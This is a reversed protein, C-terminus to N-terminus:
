EDEIEGSLYYYKLWENYHKELSECADSYNSFYVGGPQNLSEGDMQRVKLSQDKETNGLVVQFTPTKLDQPDPRYGKSDSKLLREAKRHEIERKALWFFQFCNGHEIHRLCDDRAADFEKYGVKNDAYIFYYYEGNNPLWYENDAELFGHDILMNLMRRGCPSLKENATNFYSGANLYLTSGELPLVVEKNVKYRM